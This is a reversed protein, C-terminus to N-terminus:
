GSKSSRFNLRKLGRQIVPDQMVYKWILGSYFNEIMLIIPGQDIGLYDSDYWNVTPNFADVFGYRGWLGKEGYREYMSILTPIVIEPAFVISGAAATPAITGDDLEDLGPGSTGRAAYEHFKLQGTNYKQGPGDCATLGWCLSDYGTWGHPNDIAYKWQVLTARRSNEFYDIGKKVLYDDVLSRLDLFMLTWQHGFLPAFALHGLGPYPEKWEYTSLWKQYAKEAGNYNSGAALIYLFLSEYYGIWGRDGLGKEPHWSFSVASGNKHSEPLTAWDWDVRFTLSDALARIENEIANNLHYYQSAFRVGGLLWATDITSLECNWFRQGTNMDIFHYYFGKYGTALPASSQESNMFFKLCTLTREAAAARTIWGHEVGVSWAPLAFGVAAISCPSNETSRDKVLGNEPNAENWFYHFTREQLQDLFAKESQLQQASKIKPPLIQHSQQKSCRSLNILFFLLMFFNIFKM